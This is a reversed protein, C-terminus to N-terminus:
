TTILLHRKGVTDKRIELHFTVPVMGEVDTALQTRLVGRTKWFEYSRWGAFNLILDIVRNADLQDYNFPLGEIWDLQDPDSTLWALNPVPSGSVVEVSGTELKALTTLLCNAYSAEGNFESYRWGKANRSKAVPMLSFTERQHVFIRAGPNMTAFAIAVWDNQLFPLMGSDVLLVDCNHLSGKPGSHHGEFVVVSHGFYAIGHLMGFFPIIRNPDEAPDRFAKGLLDPEVHAIVSVNLRPQAPFLERVADSAFRPVGGPAPGPFFLLSRSPTVVALCRTGMALGPLQRRTEPPCGHSIQERASSVVPLMDIWDDVKPMSAPISEKASQAPAFQRGGWAWFALYVIAPFTLPLLRHWWFGPLSARANSTVVAIGTLCAIGALAHVYRPTM